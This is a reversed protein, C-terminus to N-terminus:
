GLTLAVVLSIVSVAPLPVALLVLGVTSGGVMAATVTLNRTRLRDMLWGTALRCVLAVGIAIAVSACAVGAAMLIVAASPPFTEHSANPAGSDGHSIGHRDARATRYPLLRM